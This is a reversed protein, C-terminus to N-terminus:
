HCTGAAFTKYINVSCFLIHLCRCASRPYSGSTDYDLFHFTHRYDRVSPFLSIVACTYHLTFLHTDASAHLNLPDFCCYLVALCVVDWVNEEKSHINMNCWPTVICSQFLALFNQTELECSWFVVRSQKATHCRIFLWSHSSISQNQPLAKEHLM